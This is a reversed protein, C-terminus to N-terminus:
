SEKDANVNQSHRRELVAPYYIFYGIVFLLSTLIIFTSLMPSVASHRTVFGELFGAVIFIPVLGIAIKL